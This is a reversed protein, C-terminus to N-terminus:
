ANHDNLHNFGRMVGKDSSRIFRLIEDRIQSATLEAEIADLSHGINRYKVFLYRYVDQVHHIDAQSFGRRRMGVSNVGVYSLPERAAKVYPPVDKKVFCGGAIFAHAGIRIFQQVGAGGGIIVWDGINIHGALNVSNAIVCHQGIITDHAVHVYAMLLSDDGIVTQHLDATGRNVTAYERVTVNDGLIVHSEEGRFKLDQPIAAIVAGPFIRCGSGIIANDMIVAHPGIWTNDGIEVNASVVAFPDIQVNEGIRAAPHVHALEAVKNM